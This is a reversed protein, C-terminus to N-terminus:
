PLLEIDCVSQILYSPTYLCAVTACKYLESLMAFVKVTVDDYWDCRIKLLKNKSVFQSLSEQFIRLLECKLSTINCFVGQDVSLLHDPIILLTNDLLVLLLLVLSLIYSSPSYACDLTSDTRKILEITDVLMDFIFKNLYWDTRPHFEIFGSSMVILGLLTSLLCCLAKDLVISFRLMVFTNRM